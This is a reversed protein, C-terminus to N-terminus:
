GEILTLLLGTAGQAESPVGRWDALVQRNDAEFKLVSDRMQRRLQDNEEGKLLVILYAYRGREVVLIYEGFNITNISARLTPFSTRVFNQIVDMTATFLDQDIVKEGPAVQAAILTGDQYVLYAMRIKYARAKWRRVAVSFREKNLPSLAVWSVAGPLALASSFLPPLETRLIPRLANTSVALILALLVALFLGLMRGRLKTTQRAVERYTRFLTYAALLAYILIFVVWATFWTRNWDGLWLYGALTDQQILGGPPILFTWLLPLFALVPLFSLIYRRDMRTYFVVGFLFIFVVAFTIASFSALAARAADSENPAIFFLFDSFGYIGVSVCAALFFVETWTRFRDRYVQYLCLGWWIGASVLPLYGIANLESM